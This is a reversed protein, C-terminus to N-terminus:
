SRRIADSEDTVIVEDSGGYYVELANHLANGLMLVPSHTSDIVEHNIYKIRFLIPNVSFARMSSASYHALPFSSLAQNQKRVKKVVPLKDLKM